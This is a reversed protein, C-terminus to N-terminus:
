FVGAPELGEVARRGLLWALRHRDPLALAAAPLETSGMPRRAAWLMTMQRLEERVYTAPWDDVGFGIGLDAHHVLVERWRRFPLETAPLEQGTGGVGAGDWRAQDAFRADLAASAVAVDAVLEAWARDAGAEIAANRGAFGGVYQDLREGQTVGDLIRVFSDANRAVHTLVHGRTWGPLLSPARGDAEGDPLRRLHEDLARHAEHVAAVRAERTVDDM